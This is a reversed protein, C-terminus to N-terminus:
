PHFYGVKMGYVASNALNPDDIPQGLNSGRGEMGRTTGGFTTGGYGAIYTEGEHRRRDEVLREREMRRNREAIAEDTRPTVTGAGPGTAPGTAPGQDIGKPEITGQPTPRLDPEVNTQARVDSPGCMLGISLGGAMALSCCLKNISSM